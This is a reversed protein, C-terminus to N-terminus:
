SQKLMKIREYEEKRRRVLERLLYIDSPINEYASNKKLLISKKEILTKKYDRLKEIELISNNLSKLKQHILEKNGLHFTQIESLANLKKNEVTNKINAIMKNDNDIINEVLLRTNQTNINNNREIKDNLNRFYNIYYNNKKIKLEQIRIIQKEQLKKDLFNYNNVTNHTMLIEKDSTFLLNRSESYTLLYKKDLIFKCFDNLEYLLASSFNTLELRISKLYRKLNNVEPYIFSYVEIIKQKIILLDNPKISNENSM